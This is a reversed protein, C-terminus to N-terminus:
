YWPSDANIMLVLVSICVVNKEQWFILSKFLKSKLSEELWPKFSSILRPIHWKNANEWIETLHFIAFCQICFSPVLYSWGHLLNTLLYCLRSFFSSRNLGHGFYHNATGPPSIFPFSCLSQCLLQLKFSIIQSILSPSLTFLYSNEPLPMNTLNAEADPERGYSRNWRRKATEKKEVYWNILLHVCNPQPLSFPIILNKTKDEEKEWWLIM